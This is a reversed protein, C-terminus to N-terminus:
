SKKQNNKMQNIQMAQDFNKTSFFQNMWLNVDQLSLIESIETNDLVENTLEDNLFIARILTYLADIGEDKSFLDPDEENAKNLKLAKRLLVMRPPPATLEKGAFNIKLDFRKKQPAVEPSKEGSTNEETSLDKTLEKDNKTM